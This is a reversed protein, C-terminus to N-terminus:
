TASFPLKLYRILLHSWRSSLLVLRKAYEAIRYADTLTEHLMMLVIQFPLIM